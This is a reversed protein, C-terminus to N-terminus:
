DRNIGFEPNLWKGIYPVIAVECDQIEHEGLVIKVIVHTNRPLIPLNTLSKAEFLYSNVYEGNDKEVVTIAVSYPNNSSADFKSECYYLPPSWTWTTGEYQEPSIPIEPTFTLTSYSVSSPITYETIFRGYLDPAGDWNAVPATGKPPSYVTARPIYYEKDAIKNVKIEKIYINSNFASSISFSFKVAARTIFLTGVDLKTTPTIVAPLNVMVEHIESMPLYRKTPSSARNDVIAMDENSSEIIIDEIYPANYYTDPKLRSYDYGLNEGNALLYITKKEGAVVIFDLNDILRVAGKDLTVLRNHEVTGDPRMIIVRLQRMLEYETASEEFYNHDDPTSVVDGRSGDPYAASPAVVSFTINVMPADDSQPSDVCEEGLEFVCSQVCMLTSIIFIIHIIRKIDM